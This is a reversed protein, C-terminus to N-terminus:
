IPIPTPVAFNPVIAPNSSLLFGFKRERGGEKEGIGRVGVCGCEREIAKDRGEERGRERRRDRKRERERERERM